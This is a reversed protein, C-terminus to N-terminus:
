LCKIKGGAKMVKKFSEYDIEPVKSWKLGLKYGQAKISSRDRSILVTAIKDPMFGEKHMEIIIKDEEKTYPSGM